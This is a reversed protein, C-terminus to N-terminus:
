DIRVDLLQLALAAQQPVVGNGCARIMQERTINTETIWGQPLGMLFEVFEASLRNEGKRGDPKIREPAPRGIRKAWKNVAPEYKDWNDTHVITGLPPSNRRWNGPCNTQKYDTTLPTPLLLSATDAIRQTQTPQAFAQGNLMMGSTPWTELFPESHACIQDRETEWVSRATNWTAIHRLALYEKLM